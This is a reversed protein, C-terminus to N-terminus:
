PTPAELDRQTALLGDATARLAESLQALQGQCLAAQRHAYGALMCPRASEPLAQCRAMFAEQDLANSDGAVNQAQEYEFWAQECPAPPPTEHTPVPATTPAPTAEEAMEQAVEDTVQQDIPAIAPAEEAGSPSLAESHGDTSTEACGASLLSILLLFPLPHRM